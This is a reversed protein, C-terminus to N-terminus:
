FLYEMFYEYTVLRVEFNSLFIEFGVEMMLVVTNLSILGMVMMEWFNSEVMAWVKYKLSTHDEPVFKELPRSSM